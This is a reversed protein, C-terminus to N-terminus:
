EYSRKTVLINLLNDYTKQMAYTSFIIVPLCVLLLFLLQLVPSDPFYIKKIVVYFPRHFLYMFYSATSLFIISKKARYSTISIQYFSMFLFLSLFIILPISYLLNMNKSESDLYCSLVFSIMGVLACTVLATKKVEVKMNNAIYIGIMFPALYVAVRVDLLADNVLIKSFFAYAAFLLLVFFYFIINKLLGRSSLLVFLPGVFYFVILMSIFWLTAPAPIAFMSIGVLAKFFTTMDSIGLVTFVVLAVVYPPYIRLIKKKYFSLLSRYTINEGGIFYGSIMVFTGLVVATIRFTVVNQYNLIAQTYNLLHIFGVVYLISIVRLLDIGLNRKM